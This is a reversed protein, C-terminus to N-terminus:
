DEEKGVKSGKVQLAWVLWAAWACLARNAAAGTPLEILPTTMLVSGPQPRGRTVPLATMVGRQQNRRLLVGENGGKSELIAYAFDEGGWLMTVVVEGVRYSAAAQGHVASPLETLKAPGLQAERAKMRRLYAAEVAEIAIPEPQLNTEAGLTEALLTALEIHEFPIKNRTTGSLEFRRVHLGGEWAVEYFAHGSLRSLGLMGEGEANGLVMLQPWDIEKAETVLQIHPGNVQVRDVEKRLQDARAARFISDPLRAARRKIAELWKDNDDEAWQVYTDCLAPWIQEVLGHFERTKGQGEVGLRWDQDGIRQVLPTFSDLDAYDFLSRFSFPVGSLLRQQLERHVALWNTAVEALNDGGVAAMAQAITRGQDGRGDPGYGYVPDALCRQLHTTLHNADQFILLLRLAHRNEVDLEQMALGMRKEAKTEEGIGGFVTDMLEKQRAVAREPDTDVLLLPSEEYDPWDGEGEALDFLLAQATDTTNQQLTM